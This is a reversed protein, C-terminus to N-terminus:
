RASAYRLFLEDESRLVWSLAFREPAALRPGALIATQTVDGTLVPSLTLFLEDVLGAALFAHFLGPGGESLLARVGRARLDALANAPTCEDLRVVDVPAAVAPAPDADAPGYIVVRQDPAAFLGAEWPIDFRRSILVALPPEPRRAPSLLRGYGEARVTGTGILVADAITRLGLLMELDGDGGLPRSSGDIAARGDVSTVFNFFVYPRAEGARSALDAETLLEVASFTGGGTLREFSSM